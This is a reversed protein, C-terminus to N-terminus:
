KCNGNLAHEKLNFVHVKCVGCQRTKLHYKEMHCELSFKSCYTKNCMECKLNDNCHMRQVHMKLHCVRLFTHTCKTCKVQKMQDLIYHKEKEHKELEEKSHFYTFCKNYKCRIKIESHKTFLHLSYYRVIKGCYFCKNEKIGAKKSTSHVQLIHEKRKEDTLFYKGCKFNCKVAISKHYRSVHDPLSRKKLYCNCYPCNEFQPNVGIAGSGPNLELRHRLRMHRHIQISSVMKCCIACKVRDKTDSEHVKLYHEDREKKSHFYTPCNQLYECKIAVSNHQIRIHEKLYYRRVFKKCYICQLSGKRLEHVRREEEAQSKKVGTSNYKCKIVENSHMKRLHGTLRLSHTFSKTCVSCPYRVSHHEKRHIEKEEGSKFFKNCYSCFFTEINQHSTRIHKTTAKKSSFHLNCYTCEHQRCKLNEIKNSESDAESLINAHIPAIAVACPKILEDLIM